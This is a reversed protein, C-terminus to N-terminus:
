VNVDVDHVVVLEGFVLLVSDVLLMACGRREFRALKTQHLEARRFFQEFMDFHNM